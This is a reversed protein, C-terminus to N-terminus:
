QAEAVVDLPVGLLWAVLGVIRARWLRIGNARIRVEIQLEIPDMKM